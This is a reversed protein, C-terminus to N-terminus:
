QPENGYKKKSLMLSTFFSVIEWRALIKNSAIDQFLTAAILNARLETFFWNRLLDRTIM